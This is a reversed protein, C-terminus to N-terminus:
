ASSPIGLWVVADSRGVGPAPGERCHSSNRQPCPKFFRALSRPHDSSRDSRAQSYASLCYLGWLCQYQSDQDIRHVRDWLCRNRAPLRSGALSPSALTANLSNGRLDEKQPYRYGLTRMRPVLSSTRLCRSHWLSRSSLAILPKIYPLQLRLLVFVIQQRLRAARSIWKM